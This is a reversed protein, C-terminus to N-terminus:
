SDKIENKGNEKNIQTVILSGLRQVEKYLVALASGNEYVMEEISHKKIYQEKHEKWKEQFDKVQKQEAKTLKKEQVKKM